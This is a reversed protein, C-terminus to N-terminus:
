TDGFTPADPSMKPPSFVPVLQISEAASISETLGDVLRRQEVLLTAVRNLGLEMMSLHCPDKGDDICPFRLHLLEHVVTQEPNYPEVVLDDVKEALENYGEFSLVRIQAYGHDNDYDCTGLMAEGDRELEDVYRISIDWDMLRLRPQWYSLYRNLDIEM